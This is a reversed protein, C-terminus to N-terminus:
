GQQHSMTTVTGPGTAPLLKSSHILPNHTLSPDSERLNTQRDWPVVASPPSPHHPLLTLCLSIQRFFSCVNPLSPPLISGYICLCYAVPPHTFALRGGHQGGSSLFPVAISRGQSHVSSNYRDILSTCYRIM